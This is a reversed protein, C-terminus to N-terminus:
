GSDVVQKTMLLHNNPPKSQSILSSHHNAIQDGLQNFISASGALELELKIAVSGGDVLSNSLQYWQAKGGVVVWDNM